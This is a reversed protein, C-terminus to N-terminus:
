SESYLVYPDDHEEHPLFNFYELNVDSAPTSAKASMVCISSSALLVLYVAIGSIKSMKSKSDSVISFQFCFKYVTQLLFKKKM